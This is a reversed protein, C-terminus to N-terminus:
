VFDTRSRSSMLVKLFLSKNIKKELKKGEIKFVLLYLVSPSFSGFVERVQFFLAVVPQSFEHVIRKTPHCRSGPYYPLDLGGAPNKISTRPASVESNLHSPISHCLPRALSRSLTLSRNWNHSLSFTPSPFFFGRCNSTATWDTAARGHSTIDNWWRRQVPHTLPMQCIEDTQKGTLPSASIPVSALDRSQCLAGGSPRDVRCCSGAPVLPTLPTTASGSSSSSFLSSFELTYTQESAAPRSALDKFFRTYSKFDSTSEERRRRRRFFFTFFFFTCLSSAFQPLTPCRRMWVGNQIRRGTLLWVSWTATARHFSLTFM